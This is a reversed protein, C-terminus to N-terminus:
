RGIDPRRKSATMRSSTSLAIGGFTAMAALRGEFRTARKPSRQWSPGSQKILAHGAVHDSHAHSALLIKIDAFRFGLKEMGGRIIPLTREFSSNILIHGNSTTVLCTALGESGFTTFIIRSATRHFPNM